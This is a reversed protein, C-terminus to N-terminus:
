SRHMWSRASTTCDRARVQSHSMGEREQVVILDPPWLTEVLGQQELEDMLPRFVERDVEETHPPELVDWLDDWWMSITGLDIAKSDTPYPPRATYWTRRDANQLLGDVLIENRQLRQLWGAVSDFEPEHQVADDRVSFFTFDDRGRLADELELAAKNRGLAGFGAKLVTTDMGDFDGGPGRQNGYVRLLQADRELREEATEKAEEADRRVICQLIIRLDALADVCDAM